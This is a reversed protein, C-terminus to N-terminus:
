RNRFHDWWVRATVSQRRRGGEVSMNLLYKLSQLGHQMQPSWGDRGVHCSLLRLRYACVPACSRGLLVKDLCAPPHTHGVAM